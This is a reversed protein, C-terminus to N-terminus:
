TILDNDPIAEDLTRIYRILIYVMAIGSCGLLYCLLVKLKTMGLRQQRYREDGFNFEEKEMEIHEELKKSATSVFSRFVVMQMFLFISVILRVLNEQIM